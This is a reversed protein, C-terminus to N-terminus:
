FGLRILAVTVANKSRQKFGPAADDDPIIDASFSRYPESDLIAASRAELDATSAEYAPYSVPSVDLLKVAKIDRIERGDEERYEEDLVSFGFSSGSIDKRRLSAILDRAYSTDPPDIEYELGTATTRLRLTGATTRGLILRRDHDVLARVDDEMIARDFAYPAIREYTRPGLQYETGPTGDYFVAAFGRVVQRPEEETGGETVDLRCEQILEEIRSESPGRCQRITKAPASERADATGGHEYPTLTDIM